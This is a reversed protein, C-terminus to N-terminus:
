KVLLNCGRVDSNDLRGLVEFNVGQVVLGLDQTEIFACSHTNALDIVNLGGTRGDAVEAFPDNVERAVMKMWPPLQFYGKGYSYAQTLLETMGYESHVSTLNFRRCLLEHLEARTIEERRGKMGGTEMVICHSLDIETEEAMDMLAFSVGWLMVKRVDGRLADLKKYLLSRDYLYFGSHASKSEKIFYDLMAVLSSNGRELYSPLLALFHFNELGGYFREFVSRANAFYFKLDRIKHRGPTAGTTSSSVFTSQGVWKGTVVDHNKFFSIPLFPIDRTHKIRTPRVGLHTLYDRYVKNESAQLHFLSLAIKEFNGDNITSTFLAQELSKFREM